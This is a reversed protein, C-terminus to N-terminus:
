LDFPFKGFQLWITETSESRDFRYDNNYSHNRAYVAFWLLSNHCVCVCVCVSACSSWNQSLIVRNLIWLTPPSTARVLYIYIHTICRHPARRVKYTSGPVPVLYSRLSKGDRLFAFTGPRQIHEHFCRRALYFLIHQPLPNSRIFPYRSFFLIPFCPNQM